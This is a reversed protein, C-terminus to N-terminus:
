EKVEVEDEANTLEESMENILKENKKYRLYDEVSGTLLFKKWYKDEKM